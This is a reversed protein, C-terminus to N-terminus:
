FGEEGGKELPLFFYTRKELPQSRVILNLLISKGRVGERERLPSYQLTM